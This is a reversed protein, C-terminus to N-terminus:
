RSQAQLNQNANVLELAEQVQQKERTRVGDHRKINLSGSEIEQANM